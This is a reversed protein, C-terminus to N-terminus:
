RPQQHPDDSILLDRWNLTLTLITPLYPVKFIAM